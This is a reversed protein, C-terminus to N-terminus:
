KPFKQVEQSEAYANFVQEFSFQANKASYDHKFIQMALIYYRGLLQICISIINNDAHLKRKNKEKKHDTENLNKNKMERRIM